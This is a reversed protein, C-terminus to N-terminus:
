LKIKQGAQIRNVDKINNKSALSAVTTNHNKAIASLSEGKKVVYTSAVKPTSVVKKTASPVLIIENVAIANKNTIEEFRVRMLGGIDVGHRKAIASLTDGSKVQVYTMKNWTGTKEYQYKSGNNNSVPKSRRPPKPDTGGGGSGTGTWDLENLCRNAFAKRSALSDEGAQRNPREYNWIFAETLYEVSKGFANSRFEAFSEPYDTTSYYQINNEVEYDIRSLMSDGNRPELSNAVAWDWYKSRPTWQVLGYGRDDEWAYGYEYMDPNISSEHRMNGCMASISEKTWDTGKFHNAVMQANQLSESESLWRQYDMIWAM